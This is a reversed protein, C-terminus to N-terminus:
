DHGAATNILNLDVGLLAAARSRRKAMPAKFLIDPHTPTLLWVNEALEQELQEAGWGAYGLLAIIQAPGVGLRLEEILETATSLYIDANVKLTGPYEREASHLFFLRNPEVPGGELVPCESAQPAAQKADGQPAFGPLLEALSTDLPRNIVLGFAGEANHEVLLSISDHFYDQVLGTGSLAVLFHDAFSTELNSASM